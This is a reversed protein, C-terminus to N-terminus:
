RRDHVVVVTTTSGGCCCDDDDDDEGLADLFHEGYSKSEYRAHRGHDQLDRSGAEILASCGATPVLLLTLAVLRLIM